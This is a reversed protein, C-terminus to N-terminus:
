NIVSHRQDVRNNDEWLKVTGIMETRTFQIKEFHSRRGIVKKTDCKHSGTRSMRGCDSGRGGNRLTDVCTDVGTNAGAVWVLM